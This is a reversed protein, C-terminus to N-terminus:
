NEPLFFLIANDDYKYLISYLVANYNLNNIFSPKLEKSTYKESLFFTSKNKIGINWDIVKSYRQIANREVTELIIVSPKMEDLIGNDNLILVTEIFGLSSPQINMVKLHSNTAIYDQYYKNPGGGGGNSFSDGITLIDIKFNEQYSLHKVSLNQKNERLFLSKKLYSMRGLDGVQMNDEHSFIEKTYMNWVIFHYSIFIILLSLLIYLYRKEKM